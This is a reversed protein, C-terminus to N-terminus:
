ARPHVAEDPVEDAGSGNSVALHRDVVVHRGDSIESATDSVWKEPQQPLGAAAIRQSLAAVIVDLPEGSFRETVESVLSQIFKQREKPDSPVPLVDVQETQVGTGSDGTADLDSTSDRRIAM